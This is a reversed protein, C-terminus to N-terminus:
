VRLKRWGMMFHVNLKWYKTEEPRGFFGRGVFGEDIMSAIQWDVIPRLPMQHMWFFREFAPNTAVIPWQPSEGSLTLGFVFLCGLAYVHRAHAEAIEPPSLQLSMADLALDLRPPALESMMASPVFIFDFSDWAKALDAADGAVMLKAEPMAKRLFAVPSVMEWPECSVLYTAGPLKMKMARAIAASPGIQWIIARDAAQELQSLIGAMRLGRLVDFARLSGIGYGNAGVKATWKRWFEPEPMLLDAEDGALAETAFYKLIRKPKEPLRWPDAVVRGEKSFPMGHHIGAPTGALEAPAENKAGPPVPKEPKEAQSPKPDPDDSEEASIAGSDSDAILSVWPPPARWGGAADILPQCLAIAEAGSPEEMLKSRYYHYSRLWARRDASNPIPPRGFAM